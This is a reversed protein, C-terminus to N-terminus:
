KIMVMRKTKDYLSNDESGKAMLRYLYTGSSLGSGNFEVEHTGREELQEEILTAAEQGLLTYIKLTVISAVPLTFNIRTTPNFPNPYNQKLESTLPLNDITNLQTAPNVVPKASIFINAYASEVGTLRLKPSYSITDIPGNFSSNIESILTDLDIYEYNLVGRWFTMMSDAHAAIQKITKGVYSSLPDNYYLDGLGVPTIGLESALINFKLALMDAFLKDNEMEPTLCNFQGHFSAGTSLRAFGRPQGYHYNGNYMLSNLADFSTAITVWGYDNNRVPQPIGVILTIIKNSFLNDRVNAVNPMAFNALSNFPLLKLQTAGVKKGDNVWWWKNVRVRKNSTTVHITFDDGEKMTGGTFILDKGGMNQSRYTTFSGTLSLITVPVSFQVYIGNVASINSNTFIFHADVVIVEKAIAKAVSLDGPLFTRYNAAEALRGWGLVLSIVIVVIKNM